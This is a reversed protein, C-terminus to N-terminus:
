EPRGRSIGPLPTRCRRYATDKPAAPILFRDLATRHIRLPGNEGVRVAQLDGAEIRRYVTFTSLRLERAVERVTLLSQTQNSDRLM